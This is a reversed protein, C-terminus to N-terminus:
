VAGETPACEGCGTAGEEIPAGCICANGCGQWSSLNARILREVKGALRNIVKSDPGDFSELFDVLARGTVDAAEDIRSEDWVLNEM